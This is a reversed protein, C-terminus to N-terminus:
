SAVECAQLETTACGLSYAGNTLAKEKTDAIVTLEPQTSHPFYIAWTRQTEATSIEESSTQNSM